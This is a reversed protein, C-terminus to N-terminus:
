FPTAFEICLQDGPPDEAQQKQPWGAQRQSRPAGEATIERNDAVWPCVTWWFYGLVVVNFSSSVSLCVAIVFKVGSFIKNVRVGLAYLVRM